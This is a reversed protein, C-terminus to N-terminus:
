EDTEGEAQAKLEEFDEGRLNTARENQGPLNLANAVLEHTGAVQVGPLWYDMLAPLAARDIACICALMNVGHTDRVHKVANARPMGGSMRLEMNEGANLGAGSGCCFTQERITSPPMDYFHNCVNQIVYRPEEFFGM